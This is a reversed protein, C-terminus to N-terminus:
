TSAHEAHVATDIEEERSAREMLVRKYDIPMVKVFDKRFVKTWDDLIHQAVRSQTYEYHLKIMELLEGIDEPSEVRDLEVTALNCRTRFEGDRDWVYAIGGSMGAAFNRGTTGLIVVRGGTMYECGHDGVGEVVAWVGSNRVCFREAARGSFFAQGTTGGYLCVNGVLINREAAFSSARPPYVILRGGSLGKGVYDNADGELELTIGGALFAGFSQGASGHFQFHVMDDPLGQEGFMKVVHHSLITGVTRHVNEIPLQVRVPEGRQLAPEALQLLMRRDLSLDLGHDQTTMCRVQVQDHPKIAPALLRSLDLGAAKWHRIADETQLCDVRGIMDDMRRFGLEAMIQRAEEAVMFLYNVVYEPKGAFKKRLMPDQTAVGVPCTNLHCKRMMICGLAILPATSFGMEEAGLLAAIIVDRGTRIGGDTQLVVRGRLDNLVLTQHTEAIGLEWPLGAHKISTLPSAGTGGVDGSILIHDAHAKAVGAAVTGVGTESVLKVSIRASPNANKLDFILQALDEISYIDHHPPPSILGVGPTSYRIRAITSDVKRGPLEGGEGPKAGQAMKIQLEDANSLYWATVGFRGSAVQKIASRRSDGNPMPMFRAPDEGGEGTNSRGGVRNMALALAEHAERSISGFSMAGTCFRRVINAASEVEALPVAPQGTPRQFRLLGRLTCRRAADNNIHEAFRQYAARDGGRSAIQLSAISEPDWVHAEGGARWHFEGPNPLVPFRDEAKDPYGSAHRRLAEFGLARLDVGQIRSPTGAFCRDIVEDNLGVAEFIQAGKYSQLTSIGMKAMVKLIGKAVGVRYASLVKDDNPFDNSDLRGELRAQQLAEFALYPNIADAGYGVLLCHHHVERAEGTELVIGLRTRKANRVLHHHVAGCALLSSVPVREPGAARDSLIVLSYGADIAEEAERCLRDLATALGEAGASRPFTMDITRSRWGRHQMQQLAALERNGLIPHPILLRECHHETTELLNREPGVYCELSMIIEERISDIPPNTVQAFLQKFYDYPLRPQESLCALAADNGMSGLPDRKQQVLPILMFHVTETTYGFTQMRALITDSDLGPVNTPVDLDNLRIRNKRLWAAYPRRNAFEHKLEEDPILRGQRFDVLFMRGPELRGKLAVNEPEIPLVGVESAMLVRDDKTLYYRSPRLGNRDLVAGIYNGDTFVISAPGDWPEMLASHYEYFARKAEPMTPHKQWAEPIMMMVAEQLSRGSMLLFELVNDFSGSDSCDPEAIPFLQSLEEGFVSKDIMGERARMWNINGRLTNIEGNHSMFLFPQARDWSPFTNTSFRSHVMALHTTYTPDHLDPYIISLQDPTLMGKYIIIQTSLSCVYFLRRQALRPNGHILHSAQKRLLYLKREFAEGHLSGSAAVFLQEFAPMSQRASPGINAEDPRVPLVRWGILRQGQRQIQEEVIRKCEAREAPDTPLFVNGAAYTGAEPLECRFLAQTQAALFEHPLATLIGAGDGTNAECGCAGRHNMRRLVHAADQVLQHSRQGKIHAVLGVGCSDHELTPDYLGHASPRESTFHRNMAVSAPEFRGM